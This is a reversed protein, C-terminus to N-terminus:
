PIGIHEELWKKYAPLNTYLGVDECLETQFKGKVARQIAQSQVGIVAFSVNGATDRIMKFLPSGSDGSCPGAGLAKLEIHKGGGTVALKTGKATLKRLIGPDQNKHKTIGYGAAIYMENENLFYDMKSVVVAPSYGAPAATALEMLAIDNNSNLFNEKASYAEPITIATVPIIKTEKSPDLELSFVVVYEGPKASRDFCHAATLVRDKRILTGTCIEGDVVNVIGVVHKKFADESSVVSGGVMSHASSQWGIIMFTYFLHIATPIRM